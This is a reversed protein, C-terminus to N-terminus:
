FSFSSLFFSSVKSLQEYSNAGLKFFLASLVDIVERYRCTLGLQMPHSMLLAEYALEGEGVKLWEPLTELGKDSLERNVESLLFAM